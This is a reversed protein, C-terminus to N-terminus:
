RAHEWSSQWDTAPYAESHWILKRGRQKQYLRKERILRKLTALRTQMHGNRDHLNVDDLATDLYLPPLRAEFEATTKALLMLSVLREALAGQLSTVVPELQDLGPPPAHDRASERPM